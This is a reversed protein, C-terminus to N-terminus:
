SGYLQRRRKMSFRWAKMTLNRSGRRRMAARRDDPAVSAQASSAFLISTSVAAGLMLVTKRLRPLDVESPDFAGADLALRERHHRPEPDVRVHDDLGILRQLAPD